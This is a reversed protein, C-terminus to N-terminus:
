GFWLLDRVAEVKDPPLQAYASLEEPSTLKGLHTRAALVAEAEAATLQLHQILVQEPVANVDILGGDDVQRTLDPRGVQLERALVPDSGVLQRVEERRAIRARAATVPDFAPAPYSAPLPYSAPPASLTRTVVLTHVAAGTILLFILPGFPSGDQTGHHSTGTLSICLFTALLYGAVVIWDSGRRRAAAIRLFPVFSLLGGSLLPVIAWWRSVRAPATGSASQFQFRTVRSGRAM